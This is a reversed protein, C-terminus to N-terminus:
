ATSPDGARARRLVLWTIWCMFAYAPPGMAVKAVGLAQIQETLYLPVQVAVKLLFFAAWAMTLRHYARFRIPDDRWHLGEGLLFGLFLGLLPYPGSRLEHGAVRLRPLPILSLLFATGYAGNIFFGPLFFDRAEGSRMAFLACIAVGLAGSVAQTVPSKSVLRALLFLVSVAVAAILSIQLDHSITFVVVFLVAPTLSELVGRPGGVAESMSFQQQGAAALGGRRPGQGAATAAASPDNAQRGSRNDAAPAAPHPDRNPLDSM